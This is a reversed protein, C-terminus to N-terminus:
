ASAEMFSVSPLSTLLKISADAHYYASDLAGEYESLPYVLLLFALDHM